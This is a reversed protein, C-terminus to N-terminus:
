EYLDDGFVNLIIDKFRDNDTILTKSINRGIDTQIDNLGTVWKEIDEPSFNDPYELLYELFTFIAQINDIDRAVKYNINKHEYWDKWYKQYNMICEFSPYTANMFVSNMVNNEESEYYDLNKEKEPRVIDGTKTEALDHMLLMRLVTDKDYNQDENENPLYLLGMLWCNYMHEVINEANPINKNVWGTRPVCKAKSYEEYIKAPSFRKKNGSYNEFETKIWEFYERINQLESFVNLNLVWSLYTLCKGIYFSMNLSSQKSNIEIRAQILSCLTMLELLTVPKFSKFQMKKDLSFCITAFTLQGKATDDEFDLTTKNPIYSKDGYYELHFGRNVSNAVKDTILMELYEKLAKFDGCYILSVIIGRLLFADRRHAVVSKKKNYEIMQDEKLRELLRRADIKLVNNKFRGLWFTLESKGFLSMDNYYDSAIQYVKNEYDDINNLMKVVFRTISKPLVMNFFKLKEMNEQPSTGFHLDKFQNIYHRAILYDLMSRHKRILKWREDFFFDSNDFDMDGYEFDFAIKAASDIKEKEGLSKVCLANYVDAISMEECMINDLIMKLLNILWYADISLVGLEILRRYIQDTTVNAVTKVGLVKICNEIFDISEDKRYLPMSNIRIFYTFTTPALPHFSFLHRQNVTFDTDLGLILKCNIKELEASIYTYLYDKGSSFNRIGDLFILLTKDNNESVLGKITEFDNKVTEKLEEQTHLKEYMAVDIYFPLINNDSAALKLYIYQLLRNKYSGLPSKIKLLNEKTNNKCSECIIKTIEDGIPNYIIIESDRKKVVTNYKFLLSLEKLKIDIEELPRDVLASAGTHLFRCSFKYSTTKETVTDNAAQTTTESPFFTNAWDLMKEIGNNDETFHEVLSFVIHFNDAQSSRLGDYAFVRARGKWEPIRYLTGYFADIENHLGHSCIEGFNNLQINPNAVLLFLKSHRAITPTDGFRGGYNTEPYFYCKYRDKLLNYIERAKNVSGNDDNTGHYAIFIDIEQNTLTMESEM